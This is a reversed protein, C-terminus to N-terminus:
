KISSLILTTLVGVLLPAALATVALIRNQRQQDVIADLDTRLELMIKTDAKHQVGYTEKRVYTSDLEKPMDALQQAVAALQRTIDELRRVVESLTFDDTRRLEPSM